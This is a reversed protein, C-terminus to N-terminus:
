LVKSNTYSSLGSKHGDPQHPGVCEKDKRLTHMLADEEQIKLMGQHDVRGWRLGRYNELALSKERQGM